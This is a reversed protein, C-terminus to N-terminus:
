DEKFIELKNELDIVYDNVIQYINELKKSHCINYAEGLEIQAKYLTRLLEMKDKDSM